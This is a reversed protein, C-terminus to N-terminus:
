RTICTVPLMGKELAIMPAAYYGTYNTRLNEYYNYRSRIVSAVLVVLDNEQLHIIRQRMWPLNGKENPIVIRDIGPRYFPLKNTPHWKALKPFGEQIASM